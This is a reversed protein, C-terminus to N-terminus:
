LTNRKEIKELFGFTEKFEKYIKEVDEKNMFGQNKHMSNLINVLMGSTTFAMEYACQGNPRVRPPINDDKLNMYNTLISVNSHVFDSPFSYTVGHFWINVSDLDKLMEKCSKGPCFQERNNEKINKALHMDIKELEEIYKLSDDHACHEELTWDLVQPLPANHVNRYIKTHKLVGRSRQILYLLATEQPFKEAYLIKIWIEWLSRQLIAADEGYNHNVLLMLADFTRLYKVLFLIHFFQLVSETKTVDLALSKPLNNRVELRLNRLFLKQAKNLKRIETNQVSDM